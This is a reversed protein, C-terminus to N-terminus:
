EGQANPTEAQPLMFQVAHKVRLAQIFEQYKKQRREMALRTRIEPEVYAFPAPNGKKYQGISRLVVYGVSTSVPFSVEEIGLASAVKWLEPPYLSSQFYFLSDSISVMGKSTDNKFEEVANNWGLGSLASVRFHVADDNRAFVAISLRVLNEKLIFEDAHSQYYFAVEDPRIDQETLSYVEKELLEAISLQKKAEAVKLRVEDTEDYGKRQAEQYLLENTVWQNVYQRLEADTLQKSSDMHAYIMDMTLIQTNVSAVARKDQATEGCSAIIVAFAAVFFFPFRHKGSEKILLSFLIM